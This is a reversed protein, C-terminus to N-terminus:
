QLIYRLKLKVQKSTKNIKKERRNQINREKRLQHNYPSHCRNTPLYSQHDDKCTSTKVKIRCGELTETDSNWLKSKHRPQHLTNNNSDHSMVEHVQWPNPCKEKPVHLGHYDTCNMFVAHVYVSM